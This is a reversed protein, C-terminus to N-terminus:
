SQQERDKKQESSIRYLDDMSKLEDNSEEFMIRFSEIVKHCCYGALLILIISVIGATKSFPEQRIVEKPLFTYAGICAAQVITLFWVTKIRMCGICIIWEIMFVIYLIYLNKLYYLLDFGMITFFSFFIVEYVGDMRKKIVVFVLVLISLFAFLISGAFAYINSSYNQISTIILFVEVIFYAFISIAHGKRKLDNM